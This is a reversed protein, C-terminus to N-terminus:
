APETTRAAAPRRGIREIPAADGGSWEARRGNYEALWDRDRPLVVYGARTYRYVEGDEVGSPVIGQEQLALAARMLRRRTLMIMRDSTGLHEKTREAIPGM